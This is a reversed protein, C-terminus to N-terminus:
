VQWIGDTGARLAADEQLIKKNRVTTRERERGREGYGESEWEGM